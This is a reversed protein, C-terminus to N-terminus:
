RKENFRIPGSGPAFRLLSPHQTTWAAERRKAMEHSPLYQKRNTTREYAEAM